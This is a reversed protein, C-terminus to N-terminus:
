DWEIERPVVEYDDAELDIVKNLGRAADPGLNKADVIRALRHNESVGTAAALTNAADALNEIVPGGEYSDPDDRLRRAEDERRKLEANLAELIADATDPDLSQGPTVTVNQEIQKPIFTSAIFKLFQGPARDAFSAMADKGKEVFVGRATKTLRYALDAQAQKLSLRAPVWSPVDPLGATIRILLHVESVIGENLMSGRSTNAAAGVIWRPHTPYDRRVQAGALGGADDFWDRTDDQIWREGQTIAKPIFKWLRSNEDPIQGPPLPAPLPGKSPGPKAPAVRTSPDRVYKAM